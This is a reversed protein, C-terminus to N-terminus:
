SNLQIGQDECLLQGIPGFILLEDGVFAMKSTLTSAREPEIVTYPRRIVVRRLNQVGNASLVQQTRPNHLFVQDYHAGVEVRILGIDRTHRLLAFAVRESHEDKLSYICKVVDAWRQTDSGLLQYLAESDELPEDQSELMGKSFADLLAYSLLRQRAIVGSTSVPAPRAQSDAIKNLNDSASELAGRLTVEDMERVEGIFGGQSDFLRDVLGVSQMHLWYSLSDGQPANLDIEAGTATISSYGQERLWELAKTTHGHGPFLSVWDSITLRVGDAVVRGTVRNDQYELGDDIAMLRPTFDPITMIM